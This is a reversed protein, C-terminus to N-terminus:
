DYGPSDGFSWNAADRANTVQEDTPAEVAQGEAAAIAKSVALTMQADGLATHADVSPLDYYACATTLKQWRYSQHWDNWDGFIEAFRNMACWIRRPVDDWRQYASQNLMQLDFEANYIVVHKNQLLPILDNVIDRFPLADAVMENTIGHINTADAPIPRSPKVLTDMLVTGDAAVVAIQCVEARRDLGTTETDLVVFDGGKIMNAFQQVTPM